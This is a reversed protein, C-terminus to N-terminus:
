KNSIAGSRKPHGVRVNEGYRTRMQRKYREQRDRVAKSRNNMYWKKSRTSQSCALSCYDQQKTRVFFRGCEQKQCQRLRDGCLRLLDAVAVWFIDPWGTKLFFEVGGSRYHRPKGGRSLKYEPFRWLSLYAARIPVIWLHPFLVDVKSSNKFEVPWSDDSVDLNHMEGVVLSNLGSRLQKQLTNLHRQALSASIRDEKDKEFPGDFPYAFCFEAMNESLGRKEEKTLSSLDVGQFELLWKMWVLHEAPTWKKRPRSTAAVRVWPRSM